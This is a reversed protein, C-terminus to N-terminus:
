GSLRRRWIPEVLDAAPQYLTALEDFGGLAEDLCKGAKLEFANFGCRELYALQDRTIDGVARLEGQYGYRQRLLRGVSYGRGDTFKPFNVSILSVRSVLHTLRSLDVDGDVAIGWPASRGDFYARGAEYSELDILVKADPAADNHCPLKLWDDM